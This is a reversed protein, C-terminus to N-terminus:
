GQVRTFMSEPLEPNIETETFRAQYVWLNEFVQSMAQPLMLGDIERYDAYDTAVACRGLMPIDISTALRSILSTESDVYIQTQTGRDDAYELVYHLTEDISEDSLRKLAGSRSDRVLAHLFSLEWLWRNLAIEEANLVRLGMATEEWGVSGDWGIATAGSGFDAKQFGRQGPVFAIEWRGDLVGFMDGELHMDADRRVGRVSDLAEGGSAAVSAAVIDEVSLAPVAEVGAPRAAGSVLSLGLGLILSLFRVQRMVM